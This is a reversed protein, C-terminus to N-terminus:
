SLSICEFEKSGDKISEGLRSLWDGLKHAAGKATDQPTFDSIDIKAVWEGRVKEIILEQELTTAGNNHSVLYKITKVRGVCHVTKLEIM